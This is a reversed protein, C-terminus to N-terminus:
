GEGDGKGVVRVLRILGLGVGCFVFTLAFLWRSHEPVETGKRDTLRAARQIHAVYCGEGKGQVM